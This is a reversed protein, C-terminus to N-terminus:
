TGAMITQCASTLAYNFTGGWTKGTTVPTASSSSTKFTGSVAPTLAGSLAYTSMDITGSSANTLTGTM